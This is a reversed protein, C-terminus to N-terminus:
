LASVRMTCLLEQWSGQFAGLALQQDDASGPFCIQDQATTYVCLLLLMHATAHNPRQALRRQDLACRTGKAVADLETSLKCVRQTPRSPLERLLTFPGEREM